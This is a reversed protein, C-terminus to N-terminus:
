NKGEQGKVSPKGKNRRVLLIAAIVVAVVIAAVVGILLFVSSNNSGNASITQDVTAGGSMVDNATMTVNTSGVQYGDKTASVTYNGLPVNYFAYDGNANTTTTMTGDAM